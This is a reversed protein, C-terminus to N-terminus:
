TGNFGTRMRRLNADKYKGTAKVKALIREAEARTRGAYVAMFQQGEAVNTYYLEEPDYCRSAFVKHRPFLQQAALREAEPIFVSCDQATDRVSKLVVAYFQETEWLVANEPLAFPLQHPKFEYSTRCRVTPDPCVTLQRRQPRRQRAAGEAPAPAIVCALLSLAVGFTIAKRM